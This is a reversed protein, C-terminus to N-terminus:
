EVLDVGVDQVGPAWLKFMDLGPEWVSAAVHPCFWATPLIKMYPTLQGYSKSSVALWFEIQSGQGCCTPTTEPMHTQWLMLAWGVIRGIQTYKPYNAFYNFSCYLVASHIHLCIAISKQKNESLLINESFIYNLTSCLSLTRKGKQSIRSFTSQLKGAMLYFLRTILTSIFREIIM